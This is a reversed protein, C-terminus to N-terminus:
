KKMRKRGYGVLGLLGSGLLLLTSPEPVTERIYGRQQTAGDSVTVADWLWNQDSWTQLYTELGQHFLPNVLRGLQM